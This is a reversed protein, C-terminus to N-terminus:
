NCLCGCRVLSLHALQRLSTLFMSTTLNQEANMWRDAHGTGSMRLLFPPQTDLFCLQGQGMQLVALLPHNCLLLRNSWSKWKSVESPVQRLPLKANFKHFADDGICKKKVFDVLHRPTCVTGKKQLNTKALLAKITDCPHTPLPIDSWRPRCM